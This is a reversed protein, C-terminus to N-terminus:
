QTDTQAEPAASEASSVSSQHVNKLQQTVRYSCLALSAICLVAVAPDLWRVRNRAAVWLALIFLLSGITLLFTALIPHGFRLSSAMAAVVMGAVSLGRAIWQDSSLSGIGIKSLWPVRKKECYLYLENTSGIRRRSGATFVSSCKSRESIRAASSPKSDRSEEHAKISWGAEIPGARSLGRFFGSQVFTAVSLCSSFCHSYATSL